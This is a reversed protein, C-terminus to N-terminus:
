FQCTDDIIEAGTQRLKADVWARDYCGAEIDVFIQKERASIAQTAALVERADKQPVFVVGDADGVVIDGPRVVAGGCAIVTNIEGCGNKYPGMPTYGRSFVPLTGFALIGDYDRVTGDLVLGGIGRRAAYRVMIEGILANTLDGQGDVVVIDGPRALDLAKHIFLNDGPNVKVTFAPGCLKMDPRVPSIASCACFMRSMNDAINPTAQGRFAEILEPDPRNLRTFIRNGPLSM